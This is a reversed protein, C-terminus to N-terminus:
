LYEKREVKEAPLIDHAISLSAHEIKRSTRELEALVRDRAFPFEHQDALKFRAEISTEDLENLLADILEPVQEIDYTVAPEHTKYQRCLAIYKESRFIIQTVLKALQEDNLRMVKLARVIQELKVLQEEITRWTEDEHTKIVSTIGVNTALGIILMVLFFLISSLLGIFWSIFITTVLAIIITCAIVTAGFVSKFFSNFFQKITM